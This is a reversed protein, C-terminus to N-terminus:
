SEDIHLRWQWNNSSPLGASGPKQPHSPVWVGETAQSQRSSARPLPFGAPTNAKSVAANERAFTDALAQISSQSSPDPDCHSQDSTLRSAQWTVAVAPPEKPGTGPKPGCCGPRRQNGGEELAWRQGGGEEVTTGTILASDQSVLEWLWSPQVLAASENQLVWLGVGGSRFLLSRKFIM